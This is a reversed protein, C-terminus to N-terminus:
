NDLEREDSSDELNMKELTYDIDIKAQKEKVFEKKAEETVFSVHDILQEPTKGKHLMYLTYAYIVDNQADWVSDVLGEKDDDLGQEM